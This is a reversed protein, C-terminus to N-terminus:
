TKNSNQLMEYCSHYNRSFFSLWRSLWWLGRSAENLLTFMSNRSKKVTVSVTNTAPFLLCDDGSAICQRNQAGCWLIDHTKPRFEFLTSRTEHNLRLLWTISNVVQIKNLVVEYIHVKIFPFPIINYHFYAIVQIKVNVKYNYWSAANPSMVFNCIAGHWVSRCSLGAIPNMYLKTCVHSNEPLTVTLPVSFPALPGRPMAAGHIM